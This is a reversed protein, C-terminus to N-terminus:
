YRAVVPAGWNFRWNLRATVMDVTQHINDTGFAVGTFNVNRNGFDYHAYEVAVSWNPTFGYEWGGGITWGSRTESATANVVGTATDFATYKDDVWAGGGKVYLLAADWAYGIRGTVALISDIKTTNTNGPLALSANSGKLSTWDGSFEVGFVVPGTQWNFGVQGGGVGGSANHCGETLGLGLDDWCTHSWAGGGNGGIYFGSWNYAPPVYVPAAKMIPRAPLDAACAVGASVLALAGCTMAILQKM